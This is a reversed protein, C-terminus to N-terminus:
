EDEPTLKHMWFAVAGLITLVVAWSGLPDLNLM